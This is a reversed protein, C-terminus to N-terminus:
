ERGQGETGGRRQCAVYAAEAATRAREVMSLAGATQVLGDLCSRDEPYFVALGRQLARSVRALEGLTVEGLSANMVLVTLAGAAEAVDHQRERRPAPSVPESLRGYRYLVGILATIVEATQAEALAISVTVGMLPNTEVPSDNTVPTITDWIM